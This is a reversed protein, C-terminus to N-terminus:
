AALAQEESSFTIILFLLQLESYETYLSDMTLLFYIYVRIEYYNVFHTQFMGTPKQRQKPETLKRTMCANNKESEIVSLSQVGYLM